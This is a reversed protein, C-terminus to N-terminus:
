ISQNLERSSLFFSSFIHVYGTHANNHQATHALVITPIRKDRLGTETATTVSLHFDSSKSMNGYLSM